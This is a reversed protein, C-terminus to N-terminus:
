PTSIEEIEIKKAVGRGLAIERGNVELLIPGGFPAQRKIRVMDGPMLGLSHLKIDVGAGGKIDLIRVWKGKAVGLLDM